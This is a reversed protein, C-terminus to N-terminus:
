IDFRLLGYEDKISYAEKTKLTLQPIDTRLFDQECTKM